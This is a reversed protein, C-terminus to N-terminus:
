IIDRYECLFLTKVGTQINENFVCQGCFIINKLGDVINQIAQSISVAQEGYHFTIYRAILKKRANANRTAEESDERAPINNLLAQRATRAPPFVLSFSFQSSSFGRSPLCGAGPSTHLSKQIEKPLYQGPERASACPRALRHSKPSGKPRLFHSKEGLSRVVRLTSM